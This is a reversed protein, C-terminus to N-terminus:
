TSVFRRAVGLHDPSGDRISHRTGDLLLAPGAVDEILFPAIQQLAIRGFRARFAGDRVRCWLHGGETELSEPRLLERYDGAFCLEVATMREADFTLRLRQVVFPTDETQFWNHEKQCVVLHQGDPTSQMARLFFRLVLPDIIETGDHFIRGDRDVVYHYERV